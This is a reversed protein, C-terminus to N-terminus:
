GDRRWRETGGMGYALLLLARDPEVRLFGTTPSDDPGGPSFLDLDYDFLGTWLRRKTELDDHVTARGWVAVGDGAESVQWHMAVRPETAVNRAKRSTTSLMVWVDDGDWAPHVPSVDPAGDPGVTALHALPSLRASETRIRDLDNM